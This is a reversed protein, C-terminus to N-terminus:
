GGFAVQASTPSMMKDLLEQNDEPGGYGKDPVNSWEAETIESPRFYMNVLWAVQETFDINPDGQSLTPDGLLAFRGQHYFEIGLNKNKCSHEPVAGSGFIHVGQGSQSIESYAGPFALMLQTALESWQGEEACHDIDLFWYPDSSTFVFGVGWNMMSAGAVAETYTM